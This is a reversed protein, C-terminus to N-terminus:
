PRRKSAISNAIDTSLRGAIQSSPLVLGRLAKRFTRDPFPLSELDARRFEINTLGQETGKDLLKEALHVAIVHGTPAVWPPLAPLSDGVNITVRSQRPKSRPSVGLFTRTSCPLACVVEQAAPPDTTL